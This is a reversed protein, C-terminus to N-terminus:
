KKENKDGKIKKMIKNEILQNLKTYNGFILYIFLFSIIYSPISTQIRIFTLFVGYMILSYIVFTKININEEFKNYLNSVIVGFFYSAICVFLYGGDIMFYYIPSVFANGVGYGTNKFIEANLIHDYANNYIEPVLAGLGITELIRFFYSHIGFFSLLGYTYEVNKIQPLWLSLLTPPLAFYTYVEIFFGKETRFM